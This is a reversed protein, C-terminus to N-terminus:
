LDKKMVFNTAIESGYPYPMKGIHVFGQKEYFRQAHLNHEWVSLWVSQYGKQAAMEFCHRLLQKGFGRELVKQLIYIRQLEIVNEETVCEVNSNKRLKAYGIAKRNLYAIFFVSDPNLWEARIVGPNFNKAIYDALDLPKDLEFYTEYFTTAALAAILNIDNQAAQRIFFNDASNEL